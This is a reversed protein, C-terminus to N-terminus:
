LNPQEVLHILGRKGNILWLPDEKAIQEEQDPKMGVMIEAKLTRLLLFPRPFDGCAQEMPTIFDWHRDDLIRRYNADGKLIVLGSVKFEDRLNQPLKRFMHWSTWFPDTKLKLQNTKLYNKIRASFQKMVPNHSEDLLDITQYVDDPMADSVFYPNAKLHFVIENVWKKELLFDTLVLDFFLERGVNDNIFDIKNIRHSLIDYVRETHNILLLDRDESSALKGTNKLKVTINSLDARNGWLSAHLFYEFAKKDDAQETIEWEEEARTIDSAMLKKKQKNFPNKGKWPGAQYYGVAELLKRYFFAEAFFWPIDLWTKDQYRNLEDNWEKRDPAVEVLPMIQHNRIEDLFGELRHIIDQPYTNDEIVRQIIVPKREVITHRAFSGPESTMLPPPLIEFEIM